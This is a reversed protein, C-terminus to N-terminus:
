KLTENENNTNNKKGVFLLINISKTVKMQSCTIMTLKLEFNSLKKFIKNRTM